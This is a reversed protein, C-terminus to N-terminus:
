TEEPYVLNRVASELCKKAQYFQCKDINRIACEISFAARHMRGSIPRVALKLCERAIRRLTNIITKKDKESFNKKFLPSNAVISQISKRYSRLSIILKTQFKDIGVKREKIKDVIEAKEHLVKALEELTEKLIPSGDLYEDLVHNQQRRAHDLDEDQMFALRLHRNELRIINLAKPNLGRERLYEMLWDPVNQWIPVLFIGKKLYTVATKQKVKKGSKVLWTQRVTKEKTLYLIATGAIRKVPFINKNLWRVVDIAMLAPRNKHKKM